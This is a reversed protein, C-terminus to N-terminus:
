PLELLLNKKAKNVVFEKLLIRLLHRDSRLSPTIWLIQQAQKEKKTKSYRQYSLILLFLEIYRYKGFDMPRLIFTKEGTNTFEADM